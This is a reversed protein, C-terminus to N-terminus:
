AGPLCEIEWPAVSAFSGNEPSIVYLGYLWQAPFTAHEGSGQISTPAGKQACQERSRPHLACGANGAGESKLPRVQRFVEPADRRSFAFTYGGDDKSARLLACRLIVPKLAPQKFISDPFIPRTMALLTAVFCDMRAQPGISQKAKSAIVSCTVLVEPAPYAPLLSIKVCSARSNQTVM